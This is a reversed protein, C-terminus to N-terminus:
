VSPLVSVEPKTTIYGMKEATFEIGSRGSVGGSGGLVFRLLYAEPM